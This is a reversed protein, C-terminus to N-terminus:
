PYVNFHNKGVVPRQIPYIPSYVSRTRTITQGKLTRLVQNYNDVRQIYNQNYVRFTNYHHTTLTDYGHSPQCCLSLILMIFVLALLAFWFRELKSM